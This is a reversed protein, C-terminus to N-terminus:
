YAANKSQMSQPHVVFGVCAYTSLASVTATSSGSVTNTLVTGNQGWTRNELRGAHKQHQLGSDM